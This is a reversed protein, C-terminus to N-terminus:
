ICSEIHIHLSNYTIFHYKSNNPLFKQTDMPHASGQEFFGVYNMALGRASSCTLTSVLKILNLLARVFNLSARVFSKGFWIM